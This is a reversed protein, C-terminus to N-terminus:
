LDCRISSTTPVSFSCVRRPERESEVIYKGRTLEFVRTRTREGDSWQARHFIEGNEERVSLAYPGADRFVFRVTVSHKEIRSFEYFLSLLFLLVLVRAIRSKHKRFAQAFRARLGM